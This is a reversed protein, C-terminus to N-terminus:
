SMCIYIFVFRFQKGPHDFLKSITESSSCLLFLFIKQLVYTILIKDYANNIQIWCAVYEFFNTQLNELFYEHDNAYLSVFNKALFKRTKLYTKFLQANM